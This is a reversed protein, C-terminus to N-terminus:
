MNMELETSLILSNSYKLQEIRAGLLIIYLEKTVTVLSRWLIVEGLLEITLVM